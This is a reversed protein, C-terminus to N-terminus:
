GYLEEFREKLQFLDESWMFRDPFDEELKEFQEETYRQDRREYRGFVIVQPMLELVERIETPKDNFFILGRGGEAGREKAYEKIREVKGLKEHQTFVIEDETFFKRFKGQEIKQEQWGPIGLSLLKKEFGLENVFTLLEAAGPLKGDHAALVALIPIVAEGYYEKKDVKLKNKLTELFHELTIVIMEDDVRASKYIERAEELSYGHVTALEYIKAKFFETDFLTSDFDFIVLHKKTM